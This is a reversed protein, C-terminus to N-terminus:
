EGITHNELTTNEPNTTFDPIEIIPIIDVFFNIWLSIVQGISWTVELMIPLNQALTILGIWPPKLDEITLTGQELMLGITQGIFVVPTMVMAFIVIKVGYIPIKPMDDSVATDLIPRSLLNAIFLLLWLQGYISLGTLIFSIGTEDHLKDINEAIQRDITLLIISIDILLQIVNFTEFFSSIAQFISTLVGFIGTGRGILKLKSLRSEKESAM